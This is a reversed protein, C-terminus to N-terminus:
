VCAVVILLVFYRYTTTSVILMTASSCERFASANFVDLVGFRLGSGTTTSEECEANSYGTIESALLGDVGVLTRLSVVFFVALVLPLSSAVTTTTTTTTSRTPTKM